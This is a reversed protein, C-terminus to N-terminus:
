ISSAFEKLCPWKKNFILTKIKEPWDQGCWAAVLCIPRGVSLVGHRSISANCTPGILPACRANIEATTRSRSQRCSIGRFSHRGFM